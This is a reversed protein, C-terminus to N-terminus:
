YLTYRYSDMVRQMASEPGSEKSSPMNGYLFQSYAGQDNAVRTNATSYFIRNSQDLEFKEWLDGYLQKNTNHIGPNINQVARKVNKTIDLEVDPNFSPPASKREPNDMIETLLVNSFPNKKNGEKFETKLVSELTVPNTIVNSTKSKDFLGTVQNGEVQFGENIIDKTLKQKRIKYLVFIVALTLLGVILIRQSMTLIYGLITILIILRSIANLKQEYSMNTTPWLEFIYEKNFLVTPDSSWFQITM